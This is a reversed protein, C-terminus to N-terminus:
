RLGSYVSPHSILPQAFATLHNCLCLTSTINSAPSVQCGDSRWTEQQNSLYSCMPRKVSVLLTIDDYKQTTFTVYYEGSRLFYHEPMFITSYDGHFTVVVSFQYGRCSDTCNPRKNFVYATTNGFVAQSHEFWIIVAHFLQHIEIVFGFYTVNQVELFIGRVFTQEAPPPPDTDLM